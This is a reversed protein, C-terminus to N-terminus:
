NEEKIGFIKTLDNLAIHLVADKQNNSLTNWKDIGYTRCYSTIISNKVFNEFEKETMNKIDNKM